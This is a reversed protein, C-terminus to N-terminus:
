DLGQIEYYARELDSNPFASYEDSYGHANLGLYMGNHRFSIRSHSHGCLWAKINPRFLYELNTAFHSSRIQPGADKYKTEILQFTPLYHTLVIISSSSITDLKKKVM